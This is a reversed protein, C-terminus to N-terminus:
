DTCSILMAVNEEDDDAKGNISNERQSLSSALQGIKNAYGTRTVSGFQKATIFPLHHVALLPRDYLMQAKYLGSKM